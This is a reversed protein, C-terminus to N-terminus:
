FVALGVAPATLRSSAPAGYFPRNSPFTFIGGDAALMYYGDGIPTTTISVIPSNLRIAGTSGFFESKFAFVGGDSAVMWYGEGDPDAAIGVVPKNLVINGTSGAFEADFAFVGGDSAVLWYGEGDPDAAMGVVPKNLRINGTSGHFAASGFAFVGGDSAVLWYGDGDPAVAMAVVPKNLRTGGTSGYFKADGFTFVGGDSALLWYGSGDPLSAMSIIPANLAKGAMSGLDTAAGYRLVKGDATAARYGTVDPVDIVVDRNLSTNNRVAYGPFVLASSIDSPDDPDLLYINDHVNNPVDPISFRGDPGTEYSELAGGLTQRLLSVPIEALEEGQNYSRNRDLDAYLRGSVSANYTVAANVGVVPQGNVVSVPAPASTVTPNGGFALGIPYSGDAVSKFTYRGNVVQATRDGTDYTGTLVNDLYVAANEAIDTPDPQGDRDLDIFVSGSISGGYTVSGDHRGNQADVVSVSGPHVVRAANSPSAVRVSYTGPDLYYFEYQGNLDTAVTPEGSDLVGDTDADLFVTVAKAPLENPGFGDQNVDNYITGAIIGTGAAAAPSSSILGGAVFVTVISFVAASRFSFPRIRM